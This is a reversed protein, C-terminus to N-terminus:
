LQRSPVHQKFTVDSLIRAARSTAGGRVSRRTSLDPSIKSNTVKIYSLIMIAAFILWVISVLLNVTNMLLMGIGLSVIILGITVMGLAYGLFNWQLNINEIRNYIRGARM